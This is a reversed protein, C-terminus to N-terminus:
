RHPQEVGGVPMEAPGEVPHPQELGLCLDEVMQDLHDPRLPHVGHDHGAVDVVSRQRPDVDDGQQIVRQRPQDGRPGRHDEGTTVVVGGAPQTETGPQQLLGPQMHTGVGGPQGLRNQQGVPVARDRHVRQGVQFRRDDGGPQLHRGTVLSHQPSHQVGDAGVEGLLRRAGAAHDGGPM